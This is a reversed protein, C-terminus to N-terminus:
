FQRNTTFYALDRLFDLHPSSPWAEVVRGIERQFREAFRRAIERAYPVSDCRSILDRLFAIDAESKVEDSGSGVADPCEAMFPARAEEMIPRRGASETPPYTPVAAPQAKRLITLAERRAAPKATRLAHMLILTHKGEWLDGLFDKGYDDHNSVLNLIDDQLQFAIGLPIFKGAVRGADRDPLGAIIAGALAPAIFSYWGTKKHVLRVYDTDVHHWTGTSIWQLELMQGEASERAMRGVIRLVKLTKGLGIRGVNDLLPRMTLALMGDGVNMAIPVGHLRSLTAESRRLYSRDEVDDHILFANHYLELVAATPLIAALSGGMGRCVAICLAPRLSKGYRLPYQMMLQYLGGTHRTDTPMIARMENLVLERSYDLYDTLEGLGPL